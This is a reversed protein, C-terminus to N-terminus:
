WRSRDLSLFFVPILVIKSNPGSGAKVMANTLQTDTRIMEQGQTKRCRFIGRVIDVLTGSRRM